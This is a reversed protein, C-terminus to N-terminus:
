CFLTVLTPVLWCSFARDHLPYKDINIIDDDVPSHTRHIPTLDLSNQHIGTLRLLGVGMWGFGLSDLHCGFSHLHFWTLGHAM